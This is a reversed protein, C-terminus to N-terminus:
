LHGLTFHTAEPQSGPLGQDERGSYAPIKEKSKWFCGWEEGRERHGLSEDAPVRPIPKRARGKPQPFSCTLDPQQNREHEEDQLPRQPQSHGRQTSPRRPGVSPRPGRCWGRAAASVEMTKSQGAGLRLMLDESNRNFYSLGPIDYIEQQSRTYYM